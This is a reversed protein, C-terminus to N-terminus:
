KKKKPATIALDMRTWTCLPAAVGNLFHSSLKATCLFNASTRSPMTRFFLRHSLSMKWLTCTRGCSPAVFCFRNGHLSQGPLGILLRQTPSHSDHHRPRRGDRRRHQVKEPSRETALYRINFHPFTVNARPLVVPTCLLSRGNSMKYIKSAYPWVSHVAPQVNVMGPSAVEPIGVAAVGGM